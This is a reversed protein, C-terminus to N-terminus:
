RAFINQGRYGGRRLCWGGYLKGPLCKEGSGNCSGGFQGRNDHVGWHLDSGM